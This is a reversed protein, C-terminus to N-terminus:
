RIKDGYLRKAFWIKLRQLPHRNGWRLYGERYKGLSADFQQYYPVPRISPKGLMIGIGQATAMSACMMVGVVHSPGRGHKLDIRNPDM